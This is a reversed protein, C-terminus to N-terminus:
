MRIFSQGAFLLVVLLMMTTIKWKKRESSEVVEARETHIVSNEQRRLLHKRWLHKCVYWVGCYLWFITTNCHFNKSVCEDFFSFCRCSLLFSVLMTAAIEKWIIWYKRTSDVTYARRVLQNYHSTTFPLWRYLDANRLYM